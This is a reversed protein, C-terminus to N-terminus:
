QFIAARQVDVCQNAYFMCLLLCARWKSKAPHRLLHCYRRHRVHVVVHVSDSFRLAGIPNQDRTLRRSLVPGNSLM